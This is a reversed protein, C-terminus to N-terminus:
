AKIEMVTLTSVKGSDAEGSVSDGINYYTAGSDDQQFFVAVNIVTGAAQSPAFTDENYLEVLPIFKGYANGHAYADHSYFARHESNAFTIRERTPDYTTIATHDTATTSATGIKYGIAACIDKDHQTTNDQIGYIAASFRVLFTSNAAKTTIPLNMFRTATAGNLTLGTEDQQFVTQLVSGTPMNTSVLAGSISKNTIKTLAM